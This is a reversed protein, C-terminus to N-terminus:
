LEGGGDWAEINSVPEVALSVWPLLWVVHGYQDHLQQQNVRPRGVYLQYLQHLQTSRALVPGPIHHLPHSTSLLRYYLISPSLVLLFSVLITISQFFTFSLITYSLLFVAAPIVAFGSLSKPEYRRLLSQVVLGLFPGPVLKSTDQNLWAHSQLVDQSFETTNMKAMLVPAAVFVRIFTSSYKVVWRGFCCQSEHQIMGHLWDEANQRKEAIMLNKSAQLLKGRLVSKRSAHLLSQMHITMSRTSM